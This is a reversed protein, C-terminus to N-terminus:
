APDVVGTIAKKGLELPPCAEPRSIFHSQHQTL